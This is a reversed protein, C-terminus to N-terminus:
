TSTMWVLAQVLHPHCHGTSTVAHGAYMDLYSAGSEDYVWAGQGRVIKVPLRKYVDLLASKLEATM